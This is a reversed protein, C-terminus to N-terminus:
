RKLTLETHVCFFSLPKSPTPTRVMTLLLTTVVALPVSGTARGKQLVTPLTYVYVLVISWMDVQNWVSPFYGPRTGMNSQVTEKAAFLTNLLLIIIAMVEESDSIGFNEITTSSSGDVLLIWLCFYAMFILTDIIFYRRLHRQWMVRLVLAMSENDFATAPAKSVLDNLFSM